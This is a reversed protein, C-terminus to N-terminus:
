NRALQLTTELLEAVTPRNEPKVQLCSDILKILEQSYEHGQPIIYKGQSIAINLNAGQELEMKEFPSFGFCLSYLLCGMSWIDTAETITSNTSVDLLEPARYPLTCHEQAFDTLALAQQRSRINFRAKTCSGLDVLVPLGEPSVMVNAPKIDHHAYPTLETLQTSEPDNDIGALTDEDNDPLLQGQENDDDTTTNTTSTAQYNHMVKLGRCVGTFIRIIESEPMKEDNLVNKTIVDQLSSQFYPLLIYVSQGGDVESIICEDITQIIYPTQSNTFRHYNHIERMANKYSEDGTGFPCRIKKLAYFSNPNSTPSVLYVYSFGGEGLLRHIKYSTSNLSLTPSTPLCPFCCALINM